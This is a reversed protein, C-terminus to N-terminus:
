KDLDLIRKTEVVNPEFIKFYHEIEDRTISLQDTMDAISKCGLPYSAFNQNCTGGLYKPLDKVDIYDKIEEKNAFKILEQHKAPIWM